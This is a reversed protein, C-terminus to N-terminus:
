LKALALKIVELPIHKIKIGADQLIQLGTKDHYTEIYWFEKINSESNIILSACTQCCQKTCVMIKPTLRDQNKVLCNQEAHVCGYKGTDCLCDHQKKPGGNIGIAFIQNFDEAFLGAAVRGNKCKSLNSLLLIYSVNIIEKLTLKTKIM